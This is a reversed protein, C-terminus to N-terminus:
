RPHRRAWLERGFRYLAVDHPNDAAIRARLADSSPIPTTRNMFLPPGLDWGFRAALDACFPEFEEQVGMVDVRDELAACARALRADDVVVPTLAGRTMEAADLSLMKVMHEHVLGGTTVPDDYVEELRAGAFRPEVECQHRLFSLIREVPDRLVTFTPVDGGMRDATALPFHGTVVRITGDDDALRRLLLDVDLSVEPTGPGDPYVAEPGVAHRLRRLLATGATKQVHVFLAPPAAGPGGSM